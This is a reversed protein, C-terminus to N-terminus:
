FRNAMLITKIFQIKASEEIFESLLTAEDLNKGIAVVGHKKLVVIDQKKLQKSVADALETSGPPYYDVFPIYKEEIPGFGELRNIKEEAFAFGTAIPSHTHVVSNIDKRKKYINLHMLIESTPKMNSDYVLNGEMDVIVIEKEVLSKLSLGSPTVAVREFEDKKFKISINGSNGPVLGKNYLYHSTTIIKKIIENKQM